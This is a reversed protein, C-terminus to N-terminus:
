RVTLASPAAPRASAASPSHKYLWVEGSAPGTFKWYMIVGYTPVSAAYFDNGCGDSSAYATNCIKGPTTLDADILTWTGPGDPDLEWLQGQHAGYGYIFLFNGTVPDAVASRTTSGFAINFPADQLPTITKDAAVKWLHNAPGGNGNGGGFIAVRKVPSYEAINHYDGDPFPGGLVMWTQTSERYQVLGGSLSGYTDGNFFLLSGGDMAEHYTIAGAIQCCNPMVPAPSPIQSWTGARGSCWSPSNNFCYRYINPTGSYRYYLVENTDDWAVHDYNHYIVQQPPQAGGTTWTNTDDDYTVLGRPCTNPCTSGDAHEVIEMVMKRKKSNWAQNDDYGPNKTYLQSVAGVNNTALQRWEGPKMSAALDGLPTAPAPGASLFLLLIALIGICPVTSRQRPTPSPNPRGGRRMGDQHVVGHHRPFGAM